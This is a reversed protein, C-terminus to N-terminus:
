AAPSAEVLEPARDWGRDVAPFSPHDRLAVLAILAGFVALAASVGFIAQPSLFRSAVAVLLPGAVGGLAAAAGKLGMIRSRHAEETIDLYAASLSPGVLAAGLGAILTAVLLPGLQTLVVLGGYFSTGLLLGLAIPLRRGFRDAVRGLTGQGIVMALGYAGVMLGFSTTTLGLNDYLYFALQPEIFAFLFVSLFDLALLAILVILPRPLAAFAGLSPAATKVAGRRMATTPRTEPLWALAFVLGLAGLAASALFPMAFGLSDYLVGGLTPGFIFGVGYGGMLTGSWRARQDAPVIDGVVAMAAPLLGASIAGVAFRTAILLGVTSALLYAINAVVVSALAVLILPRRGLRDALAGMFPAALFQGIAFAMSMMGLAEVGSGLEALRRAFVPFVVGYGTMLLALSGTLLWIIRVNLTHM